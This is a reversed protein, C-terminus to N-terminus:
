PNIGARTFRGFVHSEVLRKQLVSGAQGAWNEPKVSPSLRRSSKTIKLSHFFYQHLRFQAWQHPTWGSSTKHGVIM